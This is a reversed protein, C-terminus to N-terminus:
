THLSSANHWHDSPGCNLIDHLFHKVITIWLALILTSLSKWSISPWSMITSEFLTLSRPDSIIQCKSWMYVTYKGLGANSGVQNMSTKYRLVGSSPQSGTQQTQYIYSWYQLICRTNSQRSAFRRNITYFRHSTYKCLPWRSEQKSQLLQSWLSPM